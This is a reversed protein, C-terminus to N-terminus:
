KSEPENFYPGKPIKFGVDISTTDNVVIKSKHSGSKGSIELNHDTGDISLAYQGAYNKEDMDSLHYAKGQIWNEHIINKESFLTESTILFNAIKGKGLSGIRDEVHLLKAPVITLANLAAAESLGHKIAKRINTFLESKDKLGSSTLAFNIENKELVGPNTPALEM